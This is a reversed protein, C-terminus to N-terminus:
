GGVARAQLNLLDRVATVLQEPDEKAVFRDAGAQECAARLTHDGSALILPVAAGERRLAATLEMGSMLAMQCDSVILDAGLRRYAELAQQGNGCATVRAGPFQHQLVAGVLLRTTDHDDVLIIHLEHTM